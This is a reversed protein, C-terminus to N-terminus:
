VQTQSLTSCMRPATAACDASPHGSRSAVRKMGSFRGHIPHTQSSVASRTNM